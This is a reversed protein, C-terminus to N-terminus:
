DFAETLRTATMEVFISRCVTSMVFFLITGTTNTISLSIKAPYGLADPVAAAEPGIAFVVLILGGASIIGLGILALMLPLGNNQTMRWTRGPADLVSDGLVVDAALPLLRGAIILGPVIFAIMGAMASLMLVLVGFILAPGRRFAQSLLAGASLASDGRIRQDARLVILALFGIKLPFSILLSLILSSTQADAPPLSKLLASFLVLLVGLPILLPAERLSIAFTRAFLQDTPFKLTPTM